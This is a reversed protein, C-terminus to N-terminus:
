AHYIEGCKSSFDVLHLCTYWDWPGKQSIIPILVAPVASSGPLSATPRQVDPVRVNSAFQRHKM